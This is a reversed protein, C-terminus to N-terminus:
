DEVLEVQEAGLSNLFEVTKARDFQPDKAEISIFFRDDTARKFLESKFFPHYLMPLGNLAIMGFVAGFASLLITLEFMVPTAWEFAFFPKGGIVLPYDIASTWWQLLFATLLGTASGGIIILPLKSRRMGMAADLGHVPFPTHADFKTYGALRVRRAADLIEADDKFAALAGFIRTQAM